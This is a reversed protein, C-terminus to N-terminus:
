GAIQGTGHADGQLSDVKQPISPHKRTTERFENGNRPLIHRARDHITHSWRVPRLEHCYLDRVVALLERVLGGNKEEGLSRLHQTDQRGLARYEALCGDSDGPIM